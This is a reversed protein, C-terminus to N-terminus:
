PKKNVTFVIPVTVETGPPEEHLARITKTADDLCRALEPPLPDGEISARAMGRPGVRLKLKVRAELKPDLRAADRYCRAFARRLHVLADSVRALPPPAPPPRLRAVLLARREIRAADGPDLVRDLVRLALRRREWPVGDDEAVEFCYAVVARGGVHFMAALATTFARTERQELMELTPLSRRADEDEDAIQTLEAERWAPTGIARAVTVLRAGAQELVARDGLSALSMAVHELHPNDVTLLALLREAPTPPEAAPPEVAVTVAPAPPPACSVIAACAAILAAKRPLVRATWRRVM